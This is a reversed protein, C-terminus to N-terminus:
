LKTEPTKANVSIPVTKPIQNRPLHKQGDKAEPKRPVDNRFRGNETNGKGSLHCM